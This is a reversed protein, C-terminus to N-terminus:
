NNTADTGDDLNIWGGGQYGQFRNATTNYLVMGNAATLALRETHTYSGFMVFGSAHVKNIYLNDFKKSSTGIDYVDDTVPIIGAGALPLGTTAATCNDDGPYSAAINHIGIELDTIVFEAIGAVIPATGISVSDNYFTVTGTANLPDMTASVTTTKGNVPRFDSMDLSIKTDVITPIVNISSSTNTNYNSNGNYFATIPNTGVLLSNIVLQASGNFITASGINASGNLFTVSGVPTGVIATITANLTINSGYVPTTDSIALAVSSSLKSVTVAVGSSLSSIYNSDGAYIATMNHAGGSLNSYSLTASGATITSVGIIEAGDLFFVSGTGVPSVNATLLIASKYSPSANNVTITTATNTSLANGNITVTLATSNSLANSADGSYFATVPHAGALLSRTIFTAQGNIVNATGLTTNGEKFTVTGSPSNGTVSATFGVYNVSYINTSTQSITTTTAKKAVTVNVISSTANLYGNVPDDDEFRATIQHTAVSLYNVTFTAANSSVISTGLQVTGDLWYITGNVVPPNTNQGTDLSVTLTISDGYQVNNSSTTLVPVAFGRHVTILIDGQGDLRNVKIQGTNILDDSMFTKGVIHLKYQPHHNGIGFLGDDTIRFSNTESVNGQLDRQNITIDNRHTFIESTIFTSAADQKEFAITGTITTSNIKTTETNIFRLRLAARNRTAQLRITNQVNSISPLITLTNGSITMQPSVLNSTNVNTSYLNLFKKATSGIDAVNNTLPLIAPGTSQDLTLLGQVTMGTSAVLGSNFTVNGTSPDVALSLSVVNGGVTAGDGVFLRKTDTTYILEGEVPTITLRESNTGRRIKLSM